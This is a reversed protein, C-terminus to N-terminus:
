RVAGSVTRKRLVCGLALLMTFLLIVSSPEPTTAAVPAANVTMQQPGISDNSFSHGQVYFFQTSVGVGSTNSTGEWGLVSNSSSLVTWYETNAALAYSLGSYTFEGFTGANPLISDSPSALTELLTGPTNNGSNSYLSVQFAGGSAGSPNFLYVAVSTLDYASAGTSFSAGLPGSSTIAYYGVNTTQDLSDFLIDARAAVGGVTMLILSAPLLARVFLICGKM